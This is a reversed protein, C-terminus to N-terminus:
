ADQHPLTTFLLCTQCRLTEVLLLTGDRSSLHTLQADVIVTSNLDDGALPTQNNGIPQYQGLSDTTPPKPNNGTPQYLGLGNQPQDLSSASQTQTGAQQDPQQPLTLNSASSQQEHQSALVLAPNRLADEAVQGSNSSWGQTSSKARSEGSHRFGAAEM